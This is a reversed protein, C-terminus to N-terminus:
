AAVAASPTAAKSSAAKSSAAKKKNAAVRDSYKRFVIGAKKVNRKDVRKKAIRTKSPQVSDVDMVQPPMNNAVNPPHLTPRLPLKSTEEGAQVEKDAEAAGEQTDLTAKSEPKPQKALELLKAHLREARAAEVPGFVKAALRQNNAKRSSARASKAM